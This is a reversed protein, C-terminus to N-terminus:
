EGDEVNKVMEPIGTEGMQWLTLTVCQQLTEDPDNLRSTLPGVAPKGIRCLARSLFGRLERDDGAMGDILANIAPEGIEGLAAAAYKRFDRNTHVAMAAILPAIAPKGIRSLAIAIYWRRDNDAAGALAAILPQVAPEGTERLASVAAHRKEIVPDGLAAIYKLIKEDTGSMKGGTGSMRILLRPIAEVHNNRKKLSQFLGYGISIVGGEQAVLTSSGSPEERTEDRILNSM